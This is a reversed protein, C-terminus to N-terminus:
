TAGSCHGLVVSSGPVVPVVSSGPVVPVVSSGPVVPVVSSGPVVPVVSSGPVVPVVSSRAGSFITHESFGRHCDNKEESYQSHEM